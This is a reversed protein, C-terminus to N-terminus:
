IIYVFLEKIGSFISSFLSVIISASGENDGRKMYNERSKEKDFKNKDM